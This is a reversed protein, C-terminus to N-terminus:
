GRGLRPPENEGPLSLGSGQLDEESGVLELEVITKMRYIKGTAEDKVYTTQDVAKAKGEELQVIMNMEEWNILHYFFQKVLYADQVIRGQGIIEMLTQNVLDQSKAGVPQLLKDSGQRSRKDREVELQRDNIFPMKPIPPVSAKTGGATVISVFGGRTGDGKYWNHNEFLFWIPPAGPSEYAYPESISKTRGESAARLDERQQEDLFPFVTEFDKGAIPRHDELQFYSMYLETAHLIHSEKDLMVVAYGSQDLMGILMRTDVDYSSEVGFGSMVRNARDSALYSGKAPQVVHGAKKMRGLTSRVTGREIGTINSIDVPTLPRDVSHLADIIKQPNNKMSEACM